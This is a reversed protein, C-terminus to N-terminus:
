GSGGVHGPGGPRRASHPGPTGPRVPRVPGFRADRTREESWTRGNGGPIGTGVLWRAREPFPRADRRSSPAGLTRRDPRVSRSRAYKTSDPTGPGNKQGPIGTEMLWRAREPFSRAYRRSHPAGFTRRDPRVQPLPAGRVDAPGPTGVLFPRVSDFRAYRTPEESWTRGNGCAMARARPFFPRGQPFRAYRGITRTSPRIPRVQHTRGVLYAREWWGDRGNQSLVSV